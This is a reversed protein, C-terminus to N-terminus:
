RRLSMLLCMFPPVRVRVCLCGLVLSQGWAHQRSLCSLVLVLFDFPVTVVVCLCARLCVCVCLCVCPVMHALLEPVCRFGGICGPKRACHGRVCVRVFLVCMCVCWFSIM